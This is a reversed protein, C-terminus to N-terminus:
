MGLRNKGWKVWGGWAPPANSAPTKQVKVRASDQNSKFSAQSPVTSGHNMEVGGKRPLKLPSPEELRLPTPQAKIESAAVTPAKVAKSQANSVATTHVGTTESDAPVAGAERGRIGGAVAVNRGRKEANPVADGSAAKARATEGMSPLTPATTPLRRLISHEENANTTVAANTIPTEAPIQMTRHSEFTTPPEAAAPRRYETGLDEPSRRQSQIKTKEGSTDNM